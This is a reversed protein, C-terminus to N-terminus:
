KGRKEKKDRLGGERPYRKQVELSWRAWLTFDLARWRGEWRSDRSNTTESELHGRDQTKRM